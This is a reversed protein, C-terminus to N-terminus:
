YSRCYKLMVHQLPNAVCLLQVLHGPGIGVQHLRCLSFSWVRNPILVPRLYDPTACATFLPSSHITFTILSSGGPAHFITMRGIEPCISADRRSVRNVTSEAPKAGLEGRWLPEILPQPFVDRERSMKVSGRCQLTGRSVLLNSIKLLM